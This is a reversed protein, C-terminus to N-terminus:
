YTLFRRLASGAVSRAKLYWDPPLDPWTDHRSRWDLDFQERVLFVSAPSDDFRAAFPSRDAQVRKYIALLRQGMVVPHWHERMWSASRAGVARAIRPEKALHMLMPELNELRVSIAPFDSRGTLDRLVGQIRDDIFCLAMKGLALSELTNLHYSGTVLEDICVDCAAKRRICEQHPVKIIIDIEVGIDQGELKKQIQKLLKVTEPYGKTDWRSRRASPFVSPAYGIRLVQGDERPTLSDPFNVLNPVVAANPYFREQYQAIVIQPIPCRHISAVDTAMYRAILEPNSHFHRVMAKGSKWLDAFDLPAFDTCELDIYNHLHLVDAKGAFDLVASCDRGWIWDLEFHLGAYNDPRLVVWRADIDPIERLAQCIRGPAGVLPTHSLHLIRV